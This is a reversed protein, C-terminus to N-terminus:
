FIMMRDTKLIDDWLQVLNKLILFESTEENYMNYNVDDIISYISTFPDYNFYIKLGSIENIESCLKDIAKAQFMDIKEIIIQRNISYNFIILDCVEEELLIDKRIFKPKFCEKILFQYMNHIKIILYLGYTCLDQKLIVFTSNSEQINYKIKCDKPVLNSNNIINIIYELYIKNSNNIKIFYFENIENTNNM